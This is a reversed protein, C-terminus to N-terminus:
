NFWKKHCPKSQKFLMSIKLRLIHNKLKIEPKFIKHMKLNKWTRIEWLRSKNFLLTLKNKFNSFTTKDQNVCKLKNSNIRWKDYKLMEQSSKKSCFPIEKLLSRLPTKFKRLKIKNKMLKNKQMKSIKWLLLTIIRLWISWITLTKFKNIWILQCPPLLKKLTVPEKSIINNWKHIKILSLKQSPSSNSFNLNYKIKKINSNNIKKNLINFWHCLIKYKLTLAWTQIIMRQNM